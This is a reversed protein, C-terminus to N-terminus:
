ALGQRLVTLLLVSTIHRGSQLDTGQTDPPPTRTRLRSQAHGAARRVTAKRVLRQPRPNSNVTSLIAM